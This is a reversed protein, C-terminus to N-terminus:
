TELGLEVCRTSQSPFIFDVSPPAKGSRARQAREDFAAPTATHGIVAPQWTGGGCSCGAPGNRIAAARRLEGQAVANGDLEVVLPAVIEAPADEDDDHTPVHCGATMACVAVGAAISSRACRALLPFAGGLTSKM